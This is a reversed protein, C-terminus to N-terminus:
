LCQCFDWIVSSPNQSLPNRFAPCIARLQCQLQPNSVRAKWPPLFTHKSRGTTQLYFYWTCPFFSPETWRCPLTRFESVSSINRKLYESLVLYYQEKWRKVSFSGVSPWFPEKKANLRLDPCLRTGNALSCPQNECISNLNLTPPLPCPFNPPCHSAHVPCSSVHYSLPTHAVMRWLRLYDGLKNVLGSIPLSFGM